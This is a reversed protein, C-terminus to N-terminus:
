DKVCRVSLGDQLNNAARFVTSYGYSCCLYKAWAGSQFNETASWWFATGGIEEFVGDGVSYRFGSPLASFGTSNNHIHMNESEGEYITSALANAITMSTGLNKTVFSELTTWEADTAVHWGKPAINRSNAVAYFNYLRGYKVISDSETINNSFKRM